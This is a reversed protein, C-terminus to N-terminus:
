ANYKRLELKRRCVNLKLSDVPYETGIAFGSTLVIL